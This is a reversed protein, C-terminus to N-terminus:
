LRGEKGREPGTRNLFVRIAGDRVMSRETMEYMLVLDPRGDGNVDTVKLDYISNGPIKVGEVTAERFNGKGDGLLIRLEQTDQRTFALDLKGDGDFDGSALARVSWQSEWATVTKRVPKGGLDSVIELGVITRAPPTPALEPDVDAPWVRFFGLVADDTKRGTFKGTTVAFYYSWYPIFDRGFAHWKRPSDSLWFLDTGHFYISSGVFDPVRDGNLNAAALWDGSVMRNPDDVDMPTWSKARGDNLFIKLKRKALSGEQQAPTPGESLAIIDMHGDRNADAVIARRTPFDVELGKSASVFNGKGDGLFARVGLLHIGAVIDMKGDKNLDAAVVSGYDAAEDFMVSEWFRWEGQGNGLFISPQGAPGGRESPAVIDPFGDNNFDAVDLSNRWSGQQPLGKSSEEFLIKVDAAMPKIPVFEVAAKNLYELQAANYDFYQRQQLEEATPIQDYVPLWVWVHTDDERYIEAPINVNAMPRVYGKPQDYAAFRKEFKLIKYRRGFRFWEREPDPDPGPDEPVGLRELRQEPTEQAQPQAPAEPTSAPAQAYAAASGLLIIFAVAAFVRSRRQM